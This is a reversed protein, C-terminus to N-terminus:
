KTHMKRNLQWFIMKVRKLEWLIEINKLKSENSQRKRKEGKLPSTYSWAAKYCDLFLHPWSQFLLWRPPWVSSGPPTTTCWTLQQTKLWCVLGNWSLSQLWHTATLFCKGASRILFFSNVYIPTKNPNQTTLGAKTHKGSENVDICKLPPTPPVHM